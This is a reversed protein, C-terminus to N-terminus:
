EEGPEFATLRVFQGDRIAVLFQTRATDGYENLSIPGTLGPFDRTELLAQRLRERQEASWTGRGDIKDLAAALVLMTEYSLAAPFTPPHGFRAQYRTCFDQFAPASSNMDFSVVLEMGEVARGGNYLLVETYAWYCGFLPIEWGELRARQAILATDLASAIILLGEPNGTRLTALLPAFDPRKSSPFGLGDTIEGGLARYADAFARWYSYTYAANDTDYIGAMRRLGRQQYIHRALLRAEGISPTNLRLFHDDRRSLEPTAATPSLIVVGAKEAVPIAAESQTSTMPGIIAVVGAEILERTAARAGERTGYNDRVLLEIPRGAIGGGANITEVALLVGNRGAVGLDSQHGTLEGAFGVRIPRRGACGSALLLVIILGAAVVPGGGRRTWILSPVAILILEGVLLAVIVIAVDVWFPMPFLRILTDSHLFLWSDGEFFLRHFATFFSDWALLMYAGIAALLGLTLLCGGLLAAATGSLSRERIWLLVAGGVLVALAIVGAAMLRQYVFQVDAMHRLERANFAPTGDELRLEALLSLPAGTALYDVCVNALRIRESTSMGYPDSPFNAKGYEWHTFWHGTVLRTNLAVLAVPLSVIMLWQVLRSWHRSM